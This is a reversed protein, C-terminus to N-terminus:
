DGLYQFKEVFKALIDTLENITKLHEGCLEDPYICDSNESFEELENIVNEVKKYDDNLNGVVEKMKIVLENPLEINM